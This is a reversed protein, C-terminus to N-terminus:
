CHTDSIRKKKETSAGNARSKCSCRTGHTEIVFQALRKPFLLQVDLTERSEDYVRINLKNRGKMPQDCKSAEGTTEFTVDSTEDRGHMVVELVEQMGRPLTVIGNVRELM